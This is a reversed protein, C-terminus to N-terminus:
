GVWGADTAVADGVAGPEISASSANIYLQSGLTFCLVKRPLADCLRRVPRHLRLDDCFKVLSSHENDVDKTRQPCRIGGSLPILFYRCVPMRRAGCIEPHVVQMRQLRKYYRGLMGLVVAFSTM